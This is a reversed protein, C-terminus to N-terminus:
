EFVCKHSCSLEKNCKGVCPLHGTEQCRMCKGKCEHGCPLVAACNDVCVPEKDKEGCKVPLKHGCGLSVERVMANCKPVVGWYDIDCTVVGIHGCDLNTTGKEVTCTGCDEGCAKECPHGCDPHIKNCPEKCKISNTEHLEPPHCRDRNTLVFIPSSLIVCKETCTHGCSLIAGCTTECPPIDDFDSPEKIEFVTDCHKPERSCPTMHLSSGLRGSEKFINRSWKDTFGTLVSLICSVHHREVDSSAGPM